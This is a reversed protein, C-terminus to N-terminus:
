PVPPVEGREMLEVEIRCAEEIVLEYVNIAFVESFGFKRAGAAARQKVTEVRGPQMMPIAFEAKRMAIKRCVGFRRGLTELLHNDISDLEERLSQLPDM